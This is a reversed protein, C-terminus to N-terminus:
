MNLKWVGVILIRCSTVQDDLCFCCSGFLYICCKQKKSLCVFPCNSFNIGGLHQGLSM